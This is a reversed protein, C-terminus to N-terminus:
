GFLRAWAGTGPWVILPDHVEIGAMVLPILAARAEEQAAQKSECHSISLWTAFPGQRTGHEDRKFADFQVRCAM